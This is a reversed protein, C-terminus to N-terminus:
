VPINELEFIARHMNWNNDYEIRMLRLREPSVDPGLVYVDPRSLIYAVAKALDRALTEGTYHLDNRSRWGEPFLVLPMTDELLIPTGIRLNCYGNLQRIYPEDEPRTVILQSPDLLHMLSVGQPGFSCLLGNPRTHTHRACATHGLRTPQNCAQGRRPGSKLIEQCM